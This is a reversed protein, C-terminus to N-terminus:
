QIFHNRHQAAIHEELDHKSFSDEGCFGCSFVINIVKGDAPTKNCATKTHTVGVSSSSINPDHQSDRKSQPPLM